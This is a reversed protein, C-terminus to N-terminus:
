HTTTKEYRIEFPYQGFLQGALYVKFRYLGPSSTFMVLPMYQVDVYRGDVFGIQVFGVEEESGDPSEIAFRMSYTERKDQSFMGVAVMLKIEVRPMEDSPADVTLGKVISFLNLSGDPNQKIDRSLLVFRFEPLQKNKSV